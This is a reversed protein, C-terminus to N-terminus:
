KLIKLTGDKDSFLRGTFSNVLSQNNGGIVFLSESDIIGRILHYINGKPSILKYAALGKDVKEVKYIIDNIVINNTQTLM